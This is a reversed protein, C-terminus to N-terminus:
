YQYRFTKKQKDTLDLMGEDLGYDINDFDGRAVRKDKLKNQWMCILAYMLILVCGAAACAMLALYGTDYSHSFFQPGILTGTCYAAYTM